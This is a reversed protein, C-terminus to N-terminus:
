AWLKWWPRRTAETAAAAQERELEDAVAEFEAVRRQAQDLEAKLRAVEEATEGRGALEEAAFDLKTKLCGIEEAQEEVRRRWPELLAATYRAMEEARQAAIIAAAPAAEVDQEDGEAVAAQRTAGDPAYRTAGPVYRGDGPAQREAGPPGGHGNASYEPAVQTDGAPEVDVLWVHGQPTPEQKGRLQGSRLRRRIADPSVGLRQAAARISVWESM